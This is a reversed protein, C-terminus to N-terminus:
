KHLLLPVSDAKIFYGLDQVTEELGGLIEMIQSDKKLKIFKFGFEEKLDLEQHILRGAQWLGAIEDVLGREKAGQGSYIQGQAYKRLGEIGDVIKQERVKFIDMIFQEHVDETMETLLLREEKTMPRSPSGIDKYKGAKITQPEIKAWEYLKELNTFNMIVGISGTLAGAPSFIKRCAAGIYYGGSAAVTGFSAYVPKEKDIRRIEEYIEQTPGVAGGPSNVRVIIAKVKKDEEAKILKEITKKAEMIVGEVEVVAIPANKANLTDSLGQSDKLTGVTYFAFILFILFLVTILIFIGVIGKSRQNSM